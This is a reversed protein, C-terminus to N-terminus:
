LRYRCLLVCRESGSTSLHTASIRLSERLTLSDVDLAIVPIAALTAIRLDDDGSSSETVPSFATPPQMGCMGAPCRCPKSRSHSEDCCSSHSTSANSCCSSLSGESGHEGAVRSGRCCCTAALTQEAPLLVVALLALAKSINFLLQSM